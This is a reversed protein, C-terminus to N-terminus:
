PSVRRQRGPMEGVPTLLHPRCLRLDGREGHLPCLLSWVAGPSLLPGGMVTDVSCGPLRSHCRRPGLLRCCRESCSIPRPGHRPWAVRAGVGFPLGGRVSRPSQSGREWAPKVLSPPTSPSGGVCTLAPLWCEGGTGLARSPDGHSVRGLPGRRNSTCLVRTRCMCSCGRVGGGSACPAALVLPTLGQVRHGPDPSSQGPAPRPPPPQQRPPSAAALAQPGLTCPPGWSVSPGATLPGLCQSWAPLGLRRLGRLPCTRVAQPPALAVGPGTQQVLHWLSPGMCWRQTPRGGDARPLVFGPKFVAPGSPVKGPLFPQPLPLRRAPPGEWRGPAGLGM